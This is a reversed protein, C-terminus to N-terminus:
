VNEIDRDMGVVRYDAQLAAAVPRGLNGGAGTVLVLPKDSSNRAV